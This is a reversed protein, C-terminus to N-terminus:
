SNKQRKLIKALKSRIPHSAKAACENYYPCSPCCRITGYEYREMHALESKQNPCRSCCGTYPFGSNSM